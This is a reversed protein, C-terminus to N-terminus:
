INIYLPMSPLERDARREMLPGSGPKPAAILTRRPLLNRSNFPRARLLARSRFLGPLMTPNAQAFQTSLRPNLISHSITGTQLRLLSVLSGNELALSARLVKLRGM